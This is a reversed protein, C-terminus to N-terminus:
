VRTVLFAVISVGFDSKMDLLEDHDNTVSSCRSHRMSSCGSDIIDTDVETAVEHTTKTEDLVKNTQLQYNINISLSLM